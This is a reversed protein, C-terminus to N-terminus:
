RIQRSPWPAPRRCSMRACASGAIVSRAAALTRGASGATATGALHGRCGQQQVERAQQLPGAQPPRAPHIADLEGVGFVQMMPRRVPQGEDGHVLEAPQQEQRMRQRDPEQAVGRRRPLAARWGGPVEGRPRVAQQLVGRQHPRMAASRPREVEDDRVLVQVLPRPQVAHQGCGVAPQDGEDVVQDMWNGSYARGPWASRWVARMSVAVPSASAIM